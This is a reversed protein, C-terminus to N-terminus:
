RHSVVATVRDTVLPDELLRLVAHNRLLLAADRTEVARRFQSDALLRQLRSDASLAKLASSGEGRTGARLRTAVEMLNRAAALESVEFLNHDNAFGVAVSRKPLLELTKGAISLHEQVFTLICLTLYAGVAVKGAGLLFGFGRDVSRHEGDPGALLYRLVQTLVFRVALYVGIFALVTALVHAGLLPSNVRSALRPGLYAGFPRASLSAAVLAGLVALQRSAGTLAGFLGFALVLGLLFADFTVSGDLIGSERCAPSNGM